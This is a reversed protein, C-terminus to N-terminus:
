MLKNSYLYATITYMQHIPVHVRTHISLRNIPIFQREYLRKIVLRRFCWEVM